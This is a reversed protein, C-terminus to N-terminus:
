RKGKPFPAWIAIAFVAAMVVIVVLNAISIQLWGWHIIRPTGNLSGVVAATMM